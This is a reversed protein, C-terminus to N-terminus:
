RRETGLGEERSCEALRSIEYRRNSNENTLELLLDGNGFFM